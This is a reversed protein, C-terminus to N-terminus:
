AGIIQVTPGYNISIGDSDREVTILWRDNMANWSVTVSRPVYAPHTPYSRDNDVQSIEIPTGIQIAAMIRGVALLLDGPRTLDFRTPADVEDSFSIDEIQNSLEASPYM